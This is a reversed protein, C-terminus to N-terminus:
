PDLELNREIMRQSKFSEALRPDGAGAFVQRDPYPYLPRSFVVNSPLTPLNVDPFLSTYKILKQVVIREPPADQEVWRTIDALSDFVDAGANDGAFCHGVGPMLFYRFFKRTPALGGATRVATEYYRTTVSPQVIVDATGQMMILKGGSEAFASLDPNTAEHLLQYTGRVKSFRAVDYDALSITSGSKSLEDWVPEDARLWSMMFDWMSTPNEDQSVYRHLWQFESGVPLGARAHASGPPRPLGLYARKVGELQPPNLCGPQLARACSIEGPDFDCASPDSIVGDVVGDRKDCRALAAAALASANEVTLISHGTRDSLSQLAWIIADGASESIAPCKAVIGQYDTPFRQAELLAQRGGTSNGVFYAKKTERGYLAQAIAKGALTSVHTARFAYDIQAQPNHIAWLLDNTDRGSHGMDNFMAVDGRRVIPRWISSADVREIVGCAGGCGIGVFRGSWGDLPMWLYFQDQPWVYARVECYAPTSGGAGVVRSTIIRTPAEMIGSFDQRNIASCRAAFPPDRPEAASAAGAPPAADAARWACVALITAYAFVRATIRLAPQLIICPSSRSV